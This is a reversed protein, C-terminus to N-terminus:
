TPLISFARNEALMSVISFIARARSTSASTRKSGLYDVAFTLGGEPYELCRLMQRILMSPGFSGELEDSFLREIEWFGVDMYM